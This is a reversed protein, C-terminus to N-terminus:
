LYVLNLDIEAVISFTLYRNPVYLFLFRFRVLSHHCFYKSSVKFDSVFIFPTRRKGGNILRSIFIEFNSTLHLPHMEPFQMRGFFVTCM